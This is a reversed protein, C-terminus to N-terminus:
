FSLTLLCVFTPFHRLVLAPHDNNVTLFSVFFLWTEQSNMMLLVCRDARPSYSGYDGFLMAVNLSRSREIGERGGSRELRAGHAGEPAGEMKWKIKANEDTTDSMTCTQSRAPGTPRECSNCGASAEIM